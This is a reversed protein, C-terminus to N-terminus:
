MGRLGLYTRRLVRSEFVRLRREERLTLSWTECGYLIVPLIITGYIKMKINKSLLNSSLLNQVSRCCANGSQLRGKIGVLLLLLGFASYQTGRQPRAIFFRYASPKRAAFKSHFNLIQQLYRFRMVGIVRLTDGVLFHARKSTLYGLERPLINASTFIVTSIFLWSEAKKRCV